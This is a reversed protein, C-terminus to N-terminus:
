VFVLFSINELSAGRTHGSRKNRPLLMRLEECFIQFMFIFINANRMFYGKQNKISWTINQTIKQGSNSLFLKAKLTVINLIVTWVTRLHMKSLKNVILTLFCFLSLLAIKRSISDYSKRHYYVFFDSTGFCWTIFYIRLIATRFCKELKSLLFYYIQLPM